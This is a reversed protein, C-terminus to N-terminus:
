KEDKQFEEWLAGLKAETIDHPGNPNAAFYARAFKVGWRSGASKMCRRLFEAESRMQAKGGWGIIAPAEVDLDTLAADWICRLRPPLKARM